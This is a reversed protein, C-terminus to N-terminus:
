KGLAARMVAGAIPAAVAAGQGANEVVVAVVISPNEAPALGTFWAHPAEGPANEATGTKGGVTVGPVAASGSFGERVATVMFARLTAATEQSMVQRWLQRQHERVVAGESAQVRQVLYPQMLRGDNAVAAAVLAMQLPTATLEGQGFATTALLVPNFSAGPALLRSRTVPLDFPIPEEFGFRRAQSVLREAGIKLGIDAFTANVSWAYAHAFDYEQVGPPVNSCAIVFGEVVLGSPCRFRSDPRYQGSELAAAATVTKFVSGPAYQGQTARNVLPATPDTLLEEGNAEVAGADFDPASVMALVAGTRPDLAVVAGPRDGLAAAAARQVRSDITLVLDNGRPTERTLDHWAQELASGARTGSLDGNFTEELGSVGYTASVYGLTHALSPLAHIRHRRGDTGVENHVLAVGDASWITGREERASLEAIRPNGSRSDLQDGRIVQWYSVGGSLVLFGLLLVFAARRIQPAM